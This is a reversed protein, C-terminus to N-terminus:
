WVFRASVPTLVTPSTSSTIGDDTESAAPYHPSFLDLISPVHFDFVQHSRPDALLRGFHHDPSVSFPDCDLFDSPAVELEPKPLFISTSPSSLPEGWFSDAQPNQVLLPSVQSQQPSQPSLPSPLFPSGLTDSQTTLSLPPSSLM